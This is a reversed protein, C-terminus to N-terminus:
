QIRYARNKWVVIVTGSLQDAIARIGPEDAVLARFQDSGRAVRVTSRSPDYDTDVWANGERTFRRGAVSRTEVAEVKNKDLGSPRRGGVAGANRQSMPMANNNRSRNPGHEDAPQNRFDDRSRLQEDRKASSEKAFEGSKEAELVDAPAPPPPAAKPELAYPRASALGAGGGAASSDKALPAKAVTSETGTLTGRDLQTKEDELTSRKRDLEASTGSQKGSPLSSPTAGNSPNVPNVPNVPGSPVPPESSSSSSNAADNRAVLETQRQQRLALLGIGIVATLVLAPVAYRLVTPSLLAGLKQWFNIGGAQQSVEYRAAIGAAQTLGIVISRCAACDALHEIYRARAPAPAVGEAYSNLEDADLHDSFTVGGDEAASGGRSESKNRGRALSRLLLDVENNNAQKM